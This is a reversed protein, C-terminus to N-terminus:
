GLIVPRFRSIVAGSLHNVCPFANLTASEARYMMIKAPEARCTM